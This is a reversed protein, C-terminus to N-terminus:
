KKGKINGFDMESVVRLAAEAKLKAMGALDDTPAMDFLLEGRLLTDIQAMTSRLYLAAAQVDRLRAELEDIREAAAWAIQAEGNGSDIAIVIASLRDSLRPQFPQKM